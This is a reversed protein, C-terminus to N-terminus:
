FLLSSVSLSELLFYYPKLSCFLGVSSVTEYTEITYLQIFFCLVMRWCWRVNVLVRHKVDYGAQYVEM